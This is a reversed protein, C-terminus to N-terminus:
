VLLQPKPEQPLLSPEEPPDYRTTADKTRTDALENGQIDCHGPIWQIHVEMSHSNLFSRITAADTSRNKLAKCLSQSVTCILEPTQDKNTCLWLRAELLAAKEEDYASTNHPISRIKLQEPQACQPTDEKHRGAVQQVM